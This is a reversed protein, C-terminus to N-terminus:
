VMGLPVDRKPAPFAQDIQSVEAESLQLDGAAANEITHNQKAAKPITFVGEMRVLFALMVQRVTSAKSKAIAQLVGGGTTNAAPERRQGFPTYGVVAIEEKQCMPILNREIGRDYLNYLVQNCVIKHTRLHSMAEKLDDCDFNSVGLSRIKGADVLDELAEITEKLPISGRWHLLYSDLYDVGLRKLSKECAKITGNKSANSPLVKSVIFLNERPIQKIAQGIIVESDGYMEATDIHMMGHNTGIKLAEKAEEVAQLGNPFQWSGQGIVSVQRGTSGFSRSLM